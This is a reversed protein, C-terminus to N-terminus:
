YLYMVLTYLLNVNSSGAVLSVKYLTRNSMCVDKSLALKVPPGGRAAIVCNIPLNRLDNKFLSEPSRIM